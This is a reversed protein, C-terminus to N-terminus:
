CFFNYRHNALLLCTYIIFVLWCIGLIMGLAIQLQFTYEGDNLVELWEPIDWEFEVPEEDEGDRYHKVMKEGSKGIAYFGFLTGVLDGVWAPVEALTRMISLGFSEGSGPSFLDVVGAVLAIGFAM